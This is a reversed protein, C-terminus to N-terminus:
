CEVHYVEKLIKFGIEYIFVLFKYFKYAAILYAGVARIDGAVTLNPTLQTIMSMMSEEMHIGYIGPYRTDRICLRPFIGTFDLIM